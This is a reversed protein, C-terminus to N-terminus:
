RSGASEEVGVKEAKLGTKKEWRAIIVDVYKPDIEMMRCRRGLEECAILTTGSGGFGDLVVEGKRSSNAVLRAILRVPKMTPHDANSSPKDENMVTTPIADRKLLDKVLKRLEPAKMKDVSQAKEEIVTCFSRDDVFYHPAGDAWGYVCDEHKWQYDQRSLTFSSKNWILQQRPELGADSLAKYTIAEYRSAYWLYYAGGAKCVSKMNRVSKSIFDNFGEESMDDNQITGAKGEYAINYPPDTMILDCIGGDMLKAMDEESSTDGCMLRHEGLRYVEGRKSIPEEPTEPIPDEEMEELTEEDSKEFDYKTMDIEIKALEEQLAKIDFDSNMTLKNHVLRYANKQDETLGHLIICEAEEYGLENLAQYRGHGEIIVCDEDVAIPDNNGFERISEKIQEIQSRPHLKANGAYPRIDKLKIKTIEM